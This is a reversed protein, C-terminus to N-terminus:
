KGGYERRLEARLEDGQAPPLEGRAVRVSVRAMKLDLHAREGWALIIGLCLVSISFFISRPLNKSGM